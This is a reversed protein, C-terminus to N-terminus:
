IPRPKASSCHHEDDNDRKGRDKRGGNRRLFDFRIWCTNGGPVFVVCYIGGACGEHDRLWTVLVSGVIGLLFFGKVLILSLYCLFRECRLQGVVHPM